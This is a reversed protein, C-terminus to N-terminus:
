FVRRRDGIVGGLRLGLRVRVRQQEVVAHIRVKAVTVVISAIGCLKVNRGLCRHSGIARSGLTRGGITHNSRPQSSPTM